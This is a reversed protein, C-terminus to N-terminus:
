RCGAEIGGRGAGSQESAQPGADVIQWAMQALVRAAHDDGSPTEVLDHREFWSGHLISDDDLPVLVVTGIEANDLDVQEAEAHQLCQFLHNGQNAGM